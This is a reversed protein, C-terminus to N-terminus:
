GHLHFRCRLLMGSRSHEVVYLHVNNYEYETNKPVYLRYDPDTFKIQNEIFTIDKLEAMGFYGKCFYKAFM